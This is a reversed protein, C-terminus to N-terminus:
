GRSVHIRLTNGAFSYSIQVGVCLAQIAAITPGMDQGLLYVVYDYVGRTVGDSCVAPPSVTFQQVVYIAPFGAAAWIFMQPRLTDRTENLLVSLTTRDAVEQAQTAAHSALLEAIDVVLPPPATGTQASPFLALVSPDPGIPGTLGTEVTHGYEATPGSDVTTDTPGTPGTSM